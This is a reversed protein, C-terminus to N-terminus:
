STVPGRKVGYLVVRPLNFALAPQPNAIVVTVNSGAPCPIEPEIPVTSTGWGVGGSPLAIHALPVPCPSLPNGIPDKFQIYLPNVNQNFSIVKWGRWMFVLDPQMALVINQITVGAGIQQNALPVGNLLRTNSFDFSYQFDQDRYGAPTAYPFQPRYM